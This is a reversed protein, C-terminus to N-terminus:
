YTKGSAISQGRRTRMRGAAIKRRPGILVADKGIMFGPSEVRGVAAEPLEFRTADGV